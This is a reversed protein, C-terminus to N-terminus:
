RQEFKEGLQNRLPVSCQRRNPSLNCEGSVSSSPITQFGTELVISLCWYLLSSATLSQGFVCLSAECSPSYFGLADHLTWVQTTMWLSWSLRISRRWHQVTKLSVTFCAWVGQLCSYTSNVSGSVNWYLHVQTKTWCSGWSTIFAAHPRARPLGTGSPLSSLRELGGRRQRVYRIFLLLLHWICEECEQLQAHSIHPGSKKRLQRKNGTLSQPKRIRILRWLHKLSM